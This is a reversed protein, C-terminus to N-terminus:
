NYDYLCAKCNWNWLHPSQLMCLFHGIWGVLLVWIKQADKLPLRLSKFVQLYWEWESLSCSTLFVHYVHILPLENRSAELCSNWFLLLESLPGQVYFTPSSQWSLLPRWAQADTGRSICFAKELPLRCPQTSPSGDGSFVTFFYQEVGSFAEGRKREVISSEWKVSPLDPPGPATWRSELEGGELDKGM